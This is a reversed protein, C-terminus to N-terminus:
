GKKAKPRKQADHKQKYINKSAQNQEQHLDKREERTVTGDAKATREDKRIDHQEKVLGAAEKGTLEGSRVGQGIREKQNRERANVVPTKTGTPQTQADHKQKYINKSAQNQEQRLEKREETTVTGDAKAEQKDERIEQQQKKVGATEKGTLEGSKNGQKIRAKQNKQRQDVVPTQSTGQTQAVAPLTVVLGAVVALSLWLGASKKM